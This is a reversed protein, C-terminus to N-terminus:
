DRVDASRECSVLGPSQGFAGVQHRARQRDRHAHRQGKLGSDHHLGAGVPLYLHESSQDGRPRGRRRDHERRGEDVEAQRVWKRLTEATCGIKSGISGMAQWESAYEGRHEFFLRVARERFERSFRTTRAM